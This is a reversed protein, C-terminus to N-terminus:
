YFKDNDLDRNLKSIVYIISDYKRNYEDFMGIKGVPIIAITSCVTHIFVSCYYLLEFVNSLTCPTDKDIKLLSNFSTEDFQIFKSIHKRMIKNNLIKAKIIDQNEKRKNEIVTQDKEQDMNKLGGSASVIYKETKKNVAKIVKMTVDLLVKQITSLVYKCDLTKLHDNCKNMEKQVEDAHLIKDFNIWSESVSTDKSGGSALSNNFIKNYMYIFGLSHIDLKVPKNRNM